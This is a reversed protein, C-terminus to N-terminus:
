PSAQHHPGEMAPASRMKELVFYHKRVSAPLSILRARDKKKREKKRKKMSFFCWRMTSVQHSYLTFVKRWVHVWHYLATWNERTKRARSQKKWVNFCHILSGFICLCYINDSTSCRNYVGPSPWDLREPLLNMMRKPWKWRKSFSIYISQM